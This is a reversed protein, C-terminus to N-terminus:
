YPTCVPRAKIIAAVPGLFKLGGRAQEERNLRKDGKDNRLVIEFDDGDGLKYCKFFCLVGYWYCLAVAGQTLKELPNVVVTDGRVIGASELCEDGAILGFPPQGPDYGKFYKAPLRFVGTPDVVFRDLTSSDLPWGGPPVPREEKLLTQFLVTVDRPDTNTELLVLDHVSIKLAAALAERRAPTPMNEGYEWKQYAQVSVGVAQALRKQSLGARIRAEKLLDAFAM